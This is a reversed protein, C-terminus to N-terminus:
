ILTLLRNLDSNHDKDEDIISYIHLGAACSFLTKRIIDFLSIENRVLVHASNEQTGRSPFTHIALITRSDGGYVSVMLFSTM